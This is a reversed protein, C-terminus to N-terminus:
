KRFSQVRKFTQKNNKKNRFIETERLSLAIDRNIGLQKSILNMNIFDKQIHKIRLTNQLQVM